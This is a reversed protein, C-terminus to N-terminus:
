EYRLAVIPDVKTARRAPIYCAGLAVLTLLITAGGLSLPDTASVGYLLSAMIRTLALAAALGVVVGAVILRGGSGLVMAIMQQRSAGLAVRIGIERTRQSVSCSLVGYIGLAALVLALVGFTLLLTTNFRRQAVTRELWEDMTTPEYLPITPDLSALQARMSDTVTGPDLSTRVVLYMSRVYSVQSQPYYAQERGIQDLADNRIHGVVGVVTRWLLRPPNSEPVTNFAIRQGIPDEDPWFRRAFDQDVIAVLPANQNDSDRFFRGRLLPINMAEFYGGTIFRRDAEIYRQNMPASLPANEIRTHEVYTSGSGHRQAMPILSVAAAAKVGPLSQLKLVLTRFFAALPVGDPYTASPITVRATLVHQAEFGPSVEVLRQLSRVLLGAGALLILAMSIETVVFCSRMRRGGAGSSARGADRLVDSPMTTSLQLAPALGFLVGTLTSIAFAFLLVRPDLVVESTNALASHAVGGLWYVGWVSLALGAMGGFSSLLVSETLLQRLIRGRSAGLSTRVAIEGARSSARALLLNALNACAILLVFGVAGLLVLLARRRDGVLETHLRVLALGFGKQGYNEPYARALEDAFSDLEAAGRALTVDRRLRGIVELYHTGRDRPRARNLGLPLWLDTAGGFAFGKPLVGIVVYTEADLQIAKGIIAPDAALRKSWFDYTLVAVNDRGPQDDDAAYTRGLLPSVHLVSWLASTSESTVIRVPESAQMSLNAGDGASYAALADFSHLRDRMDWWEPESIWNQPIGEHALRGWIKVLQQPDDYPLPRVLVSNVISFIVTNAGIGLALTLVAIATFGPSERLQRLAYRLDQFVGTVTKESQKRGGQVDNHPTPHRCV